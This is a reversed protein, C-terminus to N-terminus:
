ADILFINKYLYQKIFFKYPIYIDSQYNCKLSNNLIVLIVMTM